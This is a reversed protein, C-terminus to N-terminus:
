EGVCPNHEPHITLRDLARVTALPVYGKTRAKEYADDIRHLTTAYDITLVLKGAALFIDLHSELEATVEPPTKVDDDIYGYYIDEQGIGDVLEVYSPFSRVLEPANQVFVLFDPNQATAHARIRGIWAVMEAAATTRGLTEYYEYSDVLDLYVGHFGADIVRDTYALIIRQWEPDWYRARYNGDWAPNEADLWIPKGPKWSSQWYYRYEEAEGISMYSLITRPANPGDTLSSIETHTFEGTERGDSSYDIIALDYCSQAIAELDIEQLQCLFSRLTDSTPLVPAPLGIQCANLLGMWAFLASITVM